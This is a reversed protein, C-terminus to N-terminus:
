KVRECPITISNIKRHLMRELKIDPLKTEGSWGQWIKNKSDFYALTPNEFESILATHSGSAKTEHIEPIENSYVHMKASQMDVVGGDIKVDLGDIVVSISNQSLENVRMVWNFRWFPNEIRFVYNHRNQKLFAHIAIYDDVMRVEHRVGYMGWQMDIAFQNPTRMECKVDKLIPPLNEM